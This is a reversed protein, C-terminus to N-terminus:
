GETRPPFKKDYALTAEVMRELGEMTRDLDRLAQRARLLAHAMELRAGRPAADRVDKIAVSLDESARIARRAADEAESRAYERMVQVGHAQIEESTPM